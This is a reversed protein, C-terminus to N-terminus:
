KKLDPENEPEAQKVESIEQQDSFFIKDALKQLPAAFLVYGFYAGFLIYIWVNQSLSWGGPTCSNIKFLIWALLIGLLVALIKTIVSMKQM